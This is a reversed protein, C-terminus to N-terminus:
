KNLLAVEADQVTPYIRFLQSVQTMDILAKVQPNIGVFALERKARKAAVHAGVLAGLGASDVFPVAAFDVIVVPATEARLATQFDFVTHITLAGKLSLVKQGDRAGQSGVIQM